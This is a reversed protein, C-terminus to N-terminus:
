KGVCFRSFIENVVSETAREGTLSDLDEIACDINVNIADRTIGSEAGRIAENLSEYAEKCCGLQRENILM